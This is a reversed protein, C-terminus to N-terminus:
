RLDQILIKWKEGINNVSFREVNQKAKQGYKKRLTENDILKIIANSLEEVNEEEVLIGDEEDRIIESPGACKFSVCPVGVAMAELLVMGFSEYRSSLAYISSNKMEKEIQNTKPMLFVNNYLDLNFILQRLNEKEKGEGFIMLKWDPYRQVVQSFSQILMDYGKEYSYRGAAIVVKNNLNSSEFPVNTGNEIKTVMLNNINTRYYKSDRNTLCALANLKHYYKLIKNKLQESHSDYPKHEQGIKIVEKNAYKAALINFSPITTILVGKKIKKLVSLIKIDTFLSFMKYLDEDKNIILSPLKVMVKKLIKKHMPMDKYYLKGRRADFLPTIKIREDINFLTKKSTRRVSIIEVEYNSNALYNATNAVTRVTGGMGYINYVLFFIKM